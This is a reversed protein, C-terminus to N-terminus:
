DIMQQKNYHVVRRIAENGRVQDRIHGGMAGLEKEKETDEYGSGEREIERTHKVTRATALVYGPLKIGEEWRGQGGSLYM